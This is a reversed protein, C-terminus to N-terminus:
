VVAKCTILLEENKEDVNIIDIIEFYRCRFKIRNRPDINKMYRIKFIKTIENNMTQLRYFERGGKPLCNAWVDVIDYWTEVTNLESDQSISVKQLTIKRNLEGPNMHRFDKRAM